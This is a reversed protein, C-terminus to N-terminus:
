VAESLKWARMMNRKVADIDAEPTDGKLVVRERLANTSQVTYAGSAIDATTLAVGNQDAVLIKAGTIASPMTAVLSTSAAAGIRLPNSTLDLPPQNATTTQVANPRLVERVSVSDYVVTQTAASSSLGVTGTTQTAIFELTYRGPTFELKPLTGHEL